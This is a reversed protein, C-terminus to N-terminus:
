PCLREILWSGDAQRRYSFRDHLRAPQEQWLEVHDPRLRFGSWHSPRPVEGDAFEADYQAVRQELTERNPIVASQQSAWAGVQSMRDRSAFYADAEEASVPTVMGDIRVQRRQEVWYFVLTAAPNRSLQEGKPSSMNTYFVFGREDFDKLLVMRAAPRGDTGVTALCCAMYLPMTGCQEADRYWSAFQAIPDAELDRKRIITM